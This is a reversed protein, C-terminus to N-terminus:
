GASVLEIGIEGLFDEFECGFEGGVFGLHAVGCRIEEDEESQDGSESAQRKRFRKGSAGM